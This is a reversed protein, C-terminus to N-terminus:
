TPVRSTREGANMEPGDSFDLAHALFITVGCERLHWTSSGHSVMLSNDYPSPKPLEAKAMYTKRQHGDLSPLKAM